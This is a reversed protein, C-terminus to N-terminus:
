RVFDAREEPLAELVEHMVSWLDIVHRKEHEFFLDAPSEAKTAIAYSKDWGYTDGRLRALSSIAHDNCVVKYNRIM